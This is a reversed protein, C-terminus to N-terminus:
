SSLPNLIQVTRVQSQLVTSDWVQEHTAILVHDQGSDKLSIEAADLVGVADGASEFWGEMVAARHPGCFAAETSQEIPAQCFKLEMKIQTTQYLGKELALTEITIPIRCNKSM